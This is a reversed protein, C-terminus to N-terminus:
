GKVLGQKDAPRPEARARPAAEPLDDQVPDIADDALSALPVWLREGVVPGVRHPLPKNRGEAPISGRRHNSVGRSGDHNTVVKTKKGLDDGSDGHCNVQDSHM